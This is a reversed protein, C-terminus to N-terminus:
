AARAVMTRVIEELRDLSQAAGQEMGMKLVAQVAAASSYVATSRMTTRGAREELTFTILSEKNPDDNFRETYVLREPKAIERYVGSMPYDMGDPGRMVFRYAGGVRLDIECVALTMVSCGYWNAVHKPDTWAEWILARPADFARTFVIERDSPFTLVLTNPNRADM